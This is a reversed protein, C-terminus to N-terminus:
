LQGKLAMQYALDAMIMLAERTEASMEPDGHICLPNGQPTVTEIFVHPKPQQKGKERMRHSNPIRRKSM